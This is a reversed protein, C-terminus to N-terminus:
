IKTFWHGIADSYRVLLTRGDSSFSITTITTGRDGTYALHTDTIVFKYETVTIRSFFNSSMTLNGNANFVWTILGDQSVWTGIVKQENNANQANANQASFAGFLVVGVIFLFFIRKM